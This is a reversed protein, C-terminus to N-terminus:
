KPQVVPALPLELRAELGGGSRNALSLTGGLVLSLQQAIALGLGTGGTDRNRSSELRYFPQLVAELESEPIGPGRDRVTVAIEKADTKEIALEVDSGFKCANDLLNTVLRKLANPRTTLPQGLRGCRTIPRGTDVYDGAISDLFADLDIRRPPEMHSQARAYAIGEEVLVQMADLDAHFKDRLEPNDALDSRLRMRTIPTQLDHSIAALIRSREELHDTIRRQMANFAKAAAAVERPGTEPISEGRLSSGLSEAAQALRTLPRTAQRVALWTILAVALMQTNFIVGHFWSIPVNVDGAHVTLPTGDHLKLYIRAGGGAPESASLTYGPGLEKAIDAMAGRTDESLSPNGAEGAEMAYRYHLRELKPLWAGRDDPATNELVHVATSVDKSLNYHFAATEANRQTFYDFAFGVIHTFWMALVWTLLLRSFLTDPSLRRALRRLMDMM